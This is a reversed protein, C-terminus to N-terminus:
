KLDPSSFNMAKNMNFHLTIQEFYGPSFFIAKHRQPTMITKVTDVIFGNCSMVSLQFCFSFINLRNTGLNFYHFSKNLNLSAILTTGEVHPVDLVNISLIASINKM